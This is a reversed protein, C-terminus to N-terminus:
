PEPLLSTPTCPTSVSSLCGSLPVAREGEEPWVTSCGVQAQELKCLFAGDAGPSFMLSEM